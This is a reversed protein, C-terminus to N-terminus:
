VSCRRSCNGPRTVAATGHRRLLQRRHPPHLHRRPGARAYGGAKDAPEGTRWYWDIEARTLPRFEVTSTSVRADAGGEHLVAVATHVEHTRGSLRGLMRARGDLDAPKGLIEDRAGGHHRGRAGPRREAVPLSNGCRARRKRPSGCCTTLRRRAPRAAVRRHRGAAGRARRRDAAAARQAAAVGVGPLHCTRRAM